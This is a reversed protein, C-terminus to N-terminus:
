DRGDYEKIFYYVVIPHFFITFLLDKLTLKEVGYSNISIVWFIFGILLGVQLYARVVIWIYWLIESSMIFEKM